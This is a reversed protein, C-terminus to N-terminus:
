REGRSILGVDPTVIEVCTAVLKLIRDLTMTTSMTVVERKM